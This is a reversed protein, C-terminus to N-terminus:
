PLAVFAEARFAHITADDTPRMTGRLRLERAAPLVLEVLCAYQQIRGRWGTPSNNAKVLVDIERLPAAFGDPATMGSMMGVRSSYSQTATRPISFSEYYSGVHIPTTGDLLQLDIIFGHPRPRLDCDVDMNIWFVHYKADRAQFEIEFPTSPEIATWAIAEGPQNNRVHREIGWFLLGMLPVCMLFGGGAVVMSPDDQFLGLGLLLTGVGGFVSCLLVLIMVGGM